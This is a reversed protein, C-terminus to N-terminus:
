WGCILNNKLNNALGVVWRWAYNACGAGHTLPMADAGVRISLANMEELRTAMAEASFRATKLEGVESRLRENEQLPSALPLPALIPPLHLACPPASLWALNTSAQCLSCTLGYDLHLLAWSRGWGVEMKQAAERGLRILEGRLMATAEEWLATDNRGGVSGTSGDDSAPGAAGPSAVPEGGVFAALGGSPSMRPAPRRQAVSAAAVAAAERQEERSQLLKDIINALAEKTLPTAGGIHDPRKSCCVPPM